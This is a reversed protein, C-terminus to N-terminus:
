ECDELPSPLLPEDRSSEGESSPPSSHERAVELARLIADAADDVGELDGSLGYDRPMWRVHLCILQMIQDRASIMVPQDDDLLTTLDAMHLRDSM